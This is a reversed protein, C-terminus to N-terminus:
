SKVETKNFAKYSLLVMVGTSIAYYLAGLWTYFYGYSYTLDMGLLEMIGDILQGNSGVGELFALPTYVLWYPSGPILNKILSYVSGILGIGSHIGYVILVSVVTKKTLCAFTIGVFTYFLTVFLKEVFVKFYGFIFPVSVSKGSIFIIESTFINGAGHFIMMALVQLLAGSVTIFGYILLLALIKSTLIASRKVPRILLMRATGTSFERAIMSSGIIALIFWFVSEVSIYASKLVDKLSVKGTATVDEQVINNRIAYIYNFIKEASGNIASMRTFYYNSYNEEYSYGDFEEESILPYNNNIVDITSYAMNMLKTRWVLPDDGRTKLLVFTDYVNKLIIYELECQKVSLEKAHENSYSTGDKANNLAEEARKFYRESESILVDYYSDKTTNKIESKIEELQLVMMDYYKELSEEARGYAYATDMLDVKGAKYDEYGVVYKYTNFYDRFFLQYQWESYNAKFYEIANIMIKANYKEDDMSAFSRQTKKARKYDEDMNLYSDDSMGMSNIAYTVFPALAFAAILLIVMIKFGTQKWFKVLENRLLKAM